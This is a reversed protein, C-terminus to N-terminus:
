MCLVAMRSRLITSMGSTSFAGASNAAPARLKRALPWRATVIMGIIRPSAAIPANLTARPAGPGSESLCIATSLVKALWPTMAM